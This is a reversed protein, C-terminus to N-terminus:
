DSSESLSAVDQLTFARDPDGETAHPILKAVRGIVDRSPILWRDPERSNDGQTVLVGRQYDITQIRHVVRFSEGLSSNAYWFVVVDRERLDEFPVRETVIYDGFLYTPTMSSGNVTFVASDGYDTKALSSGGTACGIMGLAGISVLACFAVTKTSITLAPVDFAHPSKM